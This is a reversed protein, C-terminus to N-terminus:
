ADTGTGRKGKRRKRELAALIIWAAIAPIAICRGAKQGPTRYVLEIEHDGGELYVGQYMLNVATLETRVGDVKLEWGDSAPVSLM